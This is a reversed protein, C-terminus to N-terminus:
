QDEQITLFPPIPGKGDAGIVVPALLCLGLVQERRRQVLAQALYGGYSLGVLVFPQQQFIKDIFEELVQLIQDSTAFSLPAPSKGMGPLDLYYCQYQSFNNQMRWSFIPGLCDLMVQHDIWMGHLILCNRGDNGVKRYHLELDCIKVSCSTM